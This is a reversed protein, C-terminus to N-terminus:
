RANHPKNRTKTKRQETILVTTERTQKVAHETQQM